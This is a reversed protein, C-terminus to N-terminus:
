GTHLPREAATAQEIWEAVMGAMEASQELCFAHQIGRECLHIDGQPFTNKMRQYFSVPAWGDTVGYYFILKDLHQGICQLDPEHVLSLEQWGMFISNNTVNPDFLNLSAEVAGEDLKRGLFYLKLLWRKAVDPLFSLLFAVFVALWRFYTSPALRSGNPTEKLREIMPLLQVGKLVDVEPCHKLIELVMYCGVSHGILILQTDRPVHNKVFAIKHAIQDKFGYTGKSAGSNEKKVDDPLTVHGAHAMGWVPIRGGHARYLERMFKDYYGVVGPNGPIILYLLKKGQDTPFDGCKMVHTRIGDVCPYESRIKPVSIQTMRKVIHRSFSM